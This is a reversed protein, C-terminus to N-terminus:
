IEGSRHVARVAGYMGCLIVALGTWVDHHFMLIVGLFALTFGALLQILLLIRMSEIDKGFKKPVQSAKSCWDPVAMQM